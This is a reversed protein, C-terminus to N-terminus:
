IDQSSAREEIARVLAETAIASTVVVGGGLGLVVWAPVDWGSALAYAGYLGLYVLGALAGAAAAARTIM